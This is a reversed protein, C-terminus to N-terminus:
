LSRLLFARTRLTKIPMENKKRTSGHSEESKKQNKVMPQLKVIGTEHAGPKKQQQRPIKLM